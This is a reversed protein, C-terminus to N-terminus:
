LLFRVAQELAGGTAAHLSTQAWAPFRPLRYACLLTYLPSIVDDVAKELPDFPGYARLFAKGAEPSLSVTVNRLDGYVYGGGLLHYDFVLAAGGDRAAACNTYDVDDYCLTRPLGQLRYMLRDYGTELLTWVPADAAGSRQRLFALAARTLADSEEPLDASHAAAYPRGRDHLLRYWGALAEAFAPDALDSATCLRWVPGADLDELLLADDDARLLRPTPVGLTQLLRYHGIERRDEPNDFTKLVCRGDPGDIRYVGIGDKERIRECRGPRVGMRTLLAEDIRM